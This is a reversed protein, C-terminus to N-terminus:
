FKDKKILGKLLVADIILKFNPRLEKIFATMVITAMQTVVTAIAAGSSKYIPIFIMNLVINILSAFM